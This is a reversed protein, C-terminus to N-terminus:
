ARCVLGKKQKLIYRELQDRNKCYVVTNRNLQIKHLKTEKEIRKYEELVQRARERQESKELHQEYLM